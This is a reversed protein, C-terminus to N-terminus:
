SSASSSRCAPSKAQDGFVGEVMIWRSSASNACATRGSTPSPTGRRHVMYKAVTAQSIKTGLKLLEGHIRPAGWFPNASSMQPILERIEREVWPRGVEFALALTAVAAAATSYIAM